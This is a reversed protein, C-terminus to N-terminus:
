RPLKKVKLDPLRQKNLSDIYVHSTLWRIKEKFSKVRVSLMTKKILVPHSPLDYELWLVVKIRKDADCLLKVYPKWFEPQSSTRYAGMICAVSDRVKQALEKHLEAKLLKDKNEIRHGSFNKVEILYLEKNDWIGVFDVAKTDGINEIGARYDRHQDLQFVRWKDGFEFILHSEEFQTM